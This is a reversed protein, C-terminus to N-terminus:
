INKGKLTLDYMRGGLNLLCREGNIALFEPPQYLDNVEFTKGDFKKTTTFRPVYKLKGILIRESPERKLYVSQQELDYELELQGKQKEKSDYNREKVTMAYTFGRQATEDLTIVQEIDESRHCTSKTTIITIKNQQPDYEFADVRNIGVQLSRKMPPLSRDFLPNPEGMSRYTDGKLKLDPQEAVLETLDLTKTQPHEGVKHFRLYARRPIWPHTSLSSYVYKQWQVIDEPLTVDVAVILDKRLVVYKKLLGYEYLEKKGLVLKRSFDHQTALIVKTTKKEPDYAIIDAECHVTEPTETIVETKFTYIGDPSVQLLSHMGDKRTPYQIEEITGQVDPAFLKEVIQDLKTSEM